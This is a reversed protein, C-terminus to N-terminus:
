RERHAAGHGTQRRQHARLGLGNFGGTRTAIQENVGIVRGDANILPGGSNGQNIAADTQIGNPIMAGNPAQLARGVGSIVGTTLSFSYGLPNRDRRCARGPSRRRIASPFARIAVKEPEGDLSRHRATRDRVRAAVPSLEDGDRRATVEVRGLVGNREIVHANTIIHGQESAIFGSGLNQSGGQGEPGFSARVLVVSDATEEFLRQPSFGEIRSDVAPGATFLPQDLPEPQRSCDPHRPRGRHGRGFGGLGQPEHGEVGRRARAGDAEGVRVWSSQGM